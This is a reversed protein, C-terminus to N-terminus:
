FHLQHVAGRSQSEEAGPPPTHSARHVLVEIVSISYM